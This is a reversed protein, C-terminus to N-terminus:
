KQSIAYLLDKAVFPKKVIADFYKEQSKEPLDCGSVLVIRLNLKNNENKSRLIRAASLGDMQPMQYDMLVVIEQSENRTMAGVREVVELGNKCKGVIECEPLKQSLM